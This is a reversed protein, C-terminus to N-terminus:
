RGPKACIIVNIGLPGLPTASYNFKNGAFFDWASITPDASAQRLMNLTIEAQPLLLDWSNPPFDKAVGALSALFHFNARFSRITHEAPNQQHMDPPVLQFEVDWKDMM